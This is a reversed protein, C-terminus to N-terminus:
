MLALYRIVCLLAGAIFLGSLVALILFVLRKGRISHRAPKAPKASKALKAPTALKALKASVNNTKAFEEDFESLKQLPAGGVGSDVLAREILLCNQKYFPNVIIKEFPMKCIIPLYQKPTLYLYGTKPGNKLEQLDNYAVLHRQGLVSMTKFDYIDNESKKYVFDKVALTNISTEAILKDVAFYLPPLESLRPIQNLEEVISAKNLQREEISPQCAPSMAEIKGIPVKPYFMPISGTLNKFVNKKDDMLYFNYRSKVIQPAGDGDTVNEIMALVHLMACHPLIDLRNLTIDCDFFGDRSATKAKKLCEWGLSFVVREREEVSMASRKVDSFTVGDLTITKGPKTLESFEELANIRIVELQMLANKDKDAELRERLLLFNGYGDM